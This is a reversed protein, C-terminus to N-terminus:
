LALPIVDEASLSAVGVPADFEVDYAAGGDHVLVITGVSGVPVTESTDYTTVDSVTRVCSLEALPSSQAAGRRVYFLSSAAESPTKLAASM